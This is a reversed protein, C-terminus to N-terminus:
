EVYISVALRCFYTDGHRLSWYTTYLTSNTPARMDATLIVTQGPTVSTKLHVLPDRHLKAGGLYTFEISAPDWTATGTNTVKWGASFWENPDFEAGNGPSQWNLKCDLESLATPTPSPSPFVFTPTPSLTPEPGTSLTSTPSLTPEPTISPIPTPSLTPEPTTSPTPTPAITPVPTPPFLMACAALFFTLAMLFLAKRM